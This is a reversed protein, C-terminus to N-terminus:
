MIVAVREGSRNLQTLPKGIVRIRSYNYTTLTLIHVIDTEQNVIRKTARELDKLTQSSVRGIFASRQIRSLGISKLYNSYRERVSNDSIDYVVLVYPM